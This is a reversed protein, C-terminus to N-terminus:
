AVSSRRVSKLGALVESLKLPAYGTREVNVNIHRVSVNGGGHLHGHINVAHVPRQKLPMHRLAM